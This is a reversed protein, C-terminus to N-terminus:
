HGASVNASIIVPPLDGEQENIRMVSPQQQNEGTQHRRRPREGFLREPNDPAQISRAQDRMVSYLDQEKQPLITKALRTDGNDGEFSDTADAPPWFRGPITIPLSTGYALPGVSHMSNIGDNNPGGGRAVSVSYARSGRMWNDDEDEDDSEVFKKPTIKKKKKTNFNEEDLAFMVDEDDEQESQDGTNSPLTVVTDPVGISGVEIEEIDSLDSTKPDRMMQNLFERPLSSSFSM